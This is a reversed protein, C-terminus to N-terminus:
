RFQYLFLAFFFGIIFKNLSQEFIYIKSPPIKIFLTLFCILLIFSTILSYAILDKYNLNKRNLISYVVVGSFLIVFLILNIINGPVSLNFQSLSLNQNSYKIYYLIYLQAIIIFLVPILFVWKAKRPM